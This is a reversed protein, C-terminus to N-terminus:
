MLLNSGANFSNAFMFDAACLLSMHRKASVILWNAAKYGELPEGNSTQELGSMQDLRVSCGQGVASRELGDKVMKKEKWESM